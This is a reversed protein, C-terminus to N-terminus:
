PAHESATDRSMPPRAIVGSKATVSKRHANQRCTDSCFRADKRKGKFKVGCAACPPRYREFREKRRARCARRKASEQEREKQQRKEWEAGCGACYFYPVTDACEACPYSPRAPKAESASRMPRRPPAPKTPPAKPKVAPFTFPQLALLGQTVRHALDRRELPHLDPHAIKIADALLESTLEITEDSTSATDFLYGLPDLDFGLLSNTGMASLRLKELDNWKGGGDMYAAIARIVVRGLKRRRGHEAQWAGVCLPCRLPGGKDGHLPILFSFEGCGDCNSTTNM